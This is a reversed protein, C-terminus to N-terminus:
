KTSAAGTGIASASAAAVTAPPKPRCSIPGAGTSRSVSKRPRVLPPGSAAAHPVEAGEQELLLPRDERGGDGVGRHRDIQQEHAVGEGRDEEQISGALQDPDEELGRHEKQEDYRHHGHPEERLLPPRPRELQEQRRRDPLDLDDQGLEDGPQGQGRQHEREGAAIRDDQADVAIGVPPRDVAPEEPEQEQGGREGGDPEQHGPQHRVLDHGRHHGHAGSDEEPHDVGNSAIMVWRDSTAWKEGNAVPARNRESTPKKRVIM